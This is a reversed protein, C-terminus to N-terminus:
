NRDIGYYRVPSEPDLNIFGYRNQSNPLVKSQCVDTAMMRIGGDHKSHGCSLALRELLVLELFNHLLLRPAVVAM